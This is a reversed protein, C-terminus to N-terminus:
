KNPIQQYVLMHWPFQMTAEKVVKPFPDGQRSTCTSYSSGTSVNHQRAVTYYNSHACM